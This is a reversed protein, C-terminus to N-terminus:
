GSVTCGRGALRRVLPTLTERERITFCGVRKCRGSPVARSFCPQLSPARRGTELGGGSLLATQPIFCIVGFCVNDSGHQRGQEPPAMQGKKTPPAALSIIIIIGGILPRPVPETPPM